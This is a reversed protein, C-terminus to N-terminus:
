QSSKSKIGIIRNHLIDTMHMYHYSNWKYYNTGVTFTLVINVGINETQTGTTNNLYQFIGPLFHITTHCTVTIIFTYSEYYLLKKGYNRPIYSCLSHKLGLWPISDHYLNCVSGTLWGAVLGVCQRPKCPDVLGQKERRRNAPSTMILCVEWRPTQEAWTLEWWECVCGLFHICFKFIWLQNVTM